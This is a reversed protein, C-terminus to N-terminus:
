SRKIAMESLLAEFDKVFGATDFLPLSTKNTTLHARIAERRPKDKALSLALAKYDELSTTVLEPLGVAHLLSAAVRSIFSHGRLTVVPVGCWLADSTTTHGGVPFTDLCLDLTAYRGLHETVPAPPAFFLRAPDIGRKEAERRLNAPAHPNSEFLWLVAEPLERLLDCWVDFVPPTIKYTQNFSGLILAEEPLGYDANPRQPGIPKLDDNIQYCRPLRYVKETFFSEEGDPVTIADAIFGDIFPAGTTAPFGLWHLQVPAARYALIDLRGGQTHGKLDILIDIEDARIQAACQQATFANLEIFHDADGRLRGRIASHDEVGYSYLYVEFQARDHLGILGAILWSTAHAHFDSSLYGIRLRQHGYPVAPPLPTIGSLNRQIFAEAAAKQAAPDDFFLLTTQPPLPTPPIPEESWDAIQRCAFLYQGRGSRHGPQLALMHRWALVARDPRKANQSLRAMTEFVEYRGQHKDATQELLAFASTTDGMAAHLRALNLCPELWDPYAALTRRYLSLARDQEGLSTAVQAALHLINPDKPTLRLAETLAKDAKSLDGQHVLDVLKFFRQKAAESV